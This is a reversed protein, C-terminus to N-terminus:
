AQDSYDGVFIKCRKCICAKVIQRGFTGYDSVNVTDLKFYDLGLPLVKKVWTIGLSDGSKLYGEEMGCKPCKM